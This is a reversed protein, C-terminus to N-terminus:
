QSPVEKEAEDFDEESAPREQGPPQAPSDEEGTVGTWSLEDMCAAVRLGKMAQMADLVDQPMAPPSPARKPVATWGKRKFLRVFPLREGTSENKLLLGDYVHEECQTCIMGELICAFHEPEIEISLRAFKDRTKASIAINDTCDACMVFGCMMCMATASAKSGCVCTTFATKVRVLTPPLVLNPYQWAKLLLTRMKRPAAPADDCMKFNPEFTHTRPHFVRVYVFDPNM